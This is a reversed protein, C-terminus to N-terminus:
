NGAVPVESLVGVTATSKGRVICEVIDGREVLMVHLVECVRQEISQMTDRTATRDIAGAHKAVQEDIHDHQGCEVLPWLTSFFPGGSDDIRNGHCDIVPRLTSQEYTRRRKQM